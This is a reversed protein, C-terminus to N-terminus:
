RLAHAATLSVQLHSTPLLSRPISTHWFPRDEGVKCRPIDPRRSCGPTAPAFGLGPLVLSAGLSESGVRALNSSRASRGVHSIGVHLTTPGGSVPRKCMMRREDRNM